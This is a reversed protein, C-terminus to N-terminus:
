TQMCFGFTYQGHVHSKKKKENEEKKEKEKEKRRRKVLSFYWLGYESIFLQMKKKM